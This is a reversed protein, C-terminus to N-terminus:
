STPYNTNIKVLRKNGALGPYFFYILFFVYVKNLKGRGHLYYIIYSGLSSKPRLGCITKKFINRM